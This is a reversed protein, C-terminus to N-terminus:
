SMELKDGLRINGPQASGAPLEFVNNWVPNWFIMRGPAVNEFIRKVVFDLDCIVVDIPFRVGFTHIGLRTKFYIPENPQKGILGQAKEHWLKAFYLNKALVKKNRLNTLKM